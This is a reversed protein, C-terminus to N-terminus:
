KCTYNLKQPQSPPTSSYGCIFKIYQWAVTERQLLESTDETEIVCDGDGFRMLADDSDIFQLVAKHEPPVKMSLTLGSGSKPPKDKPYSSIIGSSEGIPPLWAAFM